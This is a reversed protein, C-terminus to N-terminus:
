EEEYLEKIYVDREENSDVFGIRAMNNNIEQIWVPRDNYYIDKIEKNNIIEFARKNNM